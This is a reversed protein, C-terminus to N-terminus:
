HFEIEGDLRLTFYQSKNDWATTLVFDVERKIEYPCKEEKNEEEFYKFLANIIAHEAEKGEIGDCECRTAEYINTFLISGLKHWLEMLKEPAEEESYSSVDAALCTSEDHNLALWVYPSCPTPSAGKLRKMTLRITPNDTFYMHHLENLVNDSLKLECANGVLANIGCYPCIGTKGEDVFETVESPHAFTRCSACYVMNSANIEERNHITHLYADKVHDKEMEQSSGFLYGKPYYTDARLFIQRGFYNVWAVEKDVRKEIRAPYTQTGGDNIHCFVATDGEREVLNFLFQKRHGIPERYTYTRSYYFRTNKM